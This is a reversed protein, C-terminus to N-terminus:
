RLVRMQYLVNAMDEGSAVRRDLEVKERNTLPRRLEWHHMHKPDWISYTVRKVEKKIRKNRQANNIMNGVASASLVSILIGEKHEEVFNLADGAAQKAEGVLDNDKVYNKIDELM